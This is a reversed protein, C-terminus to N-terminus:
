IKSELPKAGPFLEINDQIFQLALKESDFCGLQKQKSNIQARVYWKNHKKHFTYYKVTKERHGKCNLQNESRTVDKLNNIKNDTKIGNIHDIHNTPWAGYHLYWALRHAYYYKGKFVITLYGMKTICGAIQGIVKRSGRNKIWTIIGTEQDYQLYENFNTM